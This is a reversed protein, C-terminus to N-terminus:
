LNLVLNTHHYPLKVARAVITIFLQDKVIHRESEKAMGSFLTATAANMIQHDMILAIQMHLQIMFLDFLHLIHRHCPNTSDWNINLHLLACPM